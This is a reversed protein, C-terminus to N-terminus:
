SRPFNTPSVFTFLVPCNSQRCYLFILITVVRYKHTGNKSSQVSLFTNILQTSRHYFTGSRPVLLFISAAGECKYLFSYKCQTGSICSIIGEDVKTSRKCLKSFLCFPQYHCAIVLIVMLPIIIVSKPSVLLV